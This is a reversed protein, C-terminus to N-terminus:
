HGPIDIPCAIVWNSTPWRTRQTTPPPRLGRLDFMAAMKVYEDMGAALDDERNPLTGPDHPFIKPGDVDALRNLNPDGRAFAHLVCVM